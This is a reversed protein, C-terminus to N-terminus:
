STQPSLKRTKVSPVNKQFNPGVIFTHIGEAIGKAVHMRYRADLLAARERSNSLFGTEVLVAPMDTERIVAFNGAKVGRIKLAGNKQMSNLIDKGLAESRRSRSATNNNGNYFYVETGFASVNSSYNCHISVFIDAKNQNALAARKGLDVYVDTSRTLVPKYGMRRLYSQVSNALTLTLSKEEYGLEKSATGKDKGGHGPDIYIVENRRVRHPSPSGDVSAEVVFGLFFFLLLFSSNSM